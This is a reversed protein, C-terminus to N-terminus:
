LNWSKIDHYKMKKEKVNECEKDSLKLDSKIEIRKQKLCNGKILLAIYNKKEAMEIYKLLGKELLDNTQSMQISRSKLKEM